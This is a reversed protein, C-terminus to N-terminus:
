SAPKMLRIAKQGNIEVITFKCTDAQANEGERHDKFGTVTRIGKSLALKKALTGKTTRTIVRVARESLIVTQGDTTLLIADGHAMRFKEAVDVPLGVLLDEDQLGLEAKLAKASEVSISAVEKAFTPYESLVEMAAAATSDTDVEAQPATSPAAPLLVQPLQTEPQSPQSDETQQAVTAASEDPQAGNDIGM